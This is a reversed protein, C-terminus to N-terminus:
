KGRRIVEYLGPHFQLGPMRPVSGSERLAKQANLYHKPSEWRAVNVLQFKADPRLSKHLRTNIYGPQKVMFDRASEWAAVAEDLRGAPVEFVNILVVGKKGGDRGGFHDRMAGCGALTAVLAACLLLFLVRFLGPSFTAFTATKEREAM